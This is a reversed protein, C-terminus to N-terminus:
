FEQLEAVQSLIDNGELIEVPQSLNKRLDAFISEFAENLVKKVLEPNNPNISHSINDPLQDLKSRLPLLVRKIVETLKETESLKGEKEAVKLYDLRNKLEANITKAVLLKKHLEGVEKSMLESANINIKRGGKFAFAARDRIWNKAESLNNPMGLSKYKYFTSRKIGLKEWKKSDM